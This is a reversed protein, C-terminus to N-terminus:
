KPVGGLPRFRLRRRGDELTRESCDSSSKRVASTVADATVGSARFLQAPLGIPAVPAPRSFSPALSLPSEPEQVSQSYRCLGMVNARAPRAPPLSKPSPTSASLDSCALIVLGCPEASEASFECGYRLFRLGQLTYARCSLSRLAVSRNRQALRHGAARLVSDRREARGRFLHASHLALAICCVEPSSFALTMSELRKRRVKGSSPTGSASPSARLSSSSVRCARLKAALAPLGDSKRGDFSASDEGQRVCEWCPVSERVERRFDRAEQRAQLAYAGSPLM